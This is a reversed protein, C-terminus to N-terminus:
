KAESRYHRASADREIEVHACRWAFEHTAARSIGLEALARSPADALENVLRRYIFWRRVAKM